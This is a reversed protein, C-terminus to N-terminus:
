FDLDQAVEKRLWARASLWDRQVTKTSINLLMAVEEVSMGGFFRGEIVKAGRPNIQELRKLAEELALIEDAEHESIFTTEEDLSVHQQGGGRKVRNRRRAYDVLVNRMTRSAIGFFHLRNKASINQQPVLKLYVENVLATAGLTHDFRESSLRNRALRRLDDYMLRVIQDLAKEDGTEIRNLWTTIEGDRTM